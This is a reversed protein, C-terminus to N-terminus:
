PRWPMSKLEWRRALAAQDTRHVGAASEGPPLVTRITPPSTLEVRQIFTGRNGYPIPADGSVEIQDPRELPIDDRVVAAASILKTPSRGALYDFHTKKQLAHLIFSPPLAARFFEEQLMPGITPLFLKRRMEDLWLRYALQPFSGNTRVGDFAKLNPPGNLSDVFPKFYPWTEDHRAISETAGRLDEPSLIPKDLAERILSVHDIEEWVPSDQNPWWTAPRNNWNTLLGSKPNRVRPMRAKAIMGRWETSSSALVPLRPDVGPARSPVDGTYLYGTAGATTAYFFNFSMPAPEIAAEIERPEKADYLDLLADYAKMERKWYTSRRVFLHTKTELIVPGTVTRHQVVSRSPSGAVAVSFRVDEIERKRTGDLYGTAGSRRYVFVDDTDALGTTLGWAFAKTSGVLVGPLGPVDVGTADLGPASVAIEHLVSPNTFGMQPGSLLIAKGTSSRSPSVVMAYSGTKFPAGVSQAVLTSQRHEVLKLAPLLELLGIQPLDTLQKETNARSPIPFRLPNLSDDEHAVTTPAGTEDVPVLDDFVDLEHGALPRQQKLYQVGALNRLQGSAGKGFRQLLSVGIAVSDAPEWPAPALHNSAYEAPLKKLRSAEIMWSNVGHAYADIASRANGSLNQYQTLLEARTYGLKLTESDSDAYKPGFAEAMRGEAVRRSTEMQWLRDQATSYGALFWAQEVTLARIHPIGWDDRVIPDIARAGLLLLASIM